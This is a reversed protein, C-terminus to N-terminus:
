KIKITTLTITTFYSKDIYQKNLKKICFKGTKIVKGKKVLEFKLSDIDTFINKDSDCATFFDGIIKYHGNRDVISTDSLRRNSINFIIDGLNDFRIVLNDKLLSDSSIITGNYEFSHTCDSKTTCGALMLILPLILVIGLIKRTTM